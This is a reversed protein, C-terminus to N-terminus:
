THEGYLSRIEEYHGKSEITLNMYIVKIIEKQVKQLTFIQNQPSNHISLFSSLIDFSHENTNRLHVSSKHIQSLM